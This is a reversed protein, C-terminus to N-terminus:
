WAFEFQERFITISSVTLTVFWLTWCNELFLFADSCATSFIIQCIIFIARWHFESMLIHWSLYTTEFFLFDELFLFVSFFGSPHFFDHFLTFDMFSSTSVAVVLDAEIEHLYLFAFVVTHQFYVYVIHFIFLVNFFIFFLLSILM